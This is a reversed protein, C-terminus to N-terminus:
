LMTAKWFCPKRLSLDIDLALRSWVQTQFGTYSSRELQPVIGSKTVNEAAREPALTQRRTTM